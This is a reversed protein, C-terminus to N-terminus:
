FPQDDSKDDKKLTTTAKAKTFGGAVTLGREKLEAKLQAADWKTYDPAADEGDEEEDDEEEEEGDGAAATIAERLDDDSMSKLVKVELDNEKIFAKLAKRDLESLDVGEDEEEEEEEPEEEPEEEEAEAGMAEAIEKRLDDDSKGKTVKVELSEDKILKKLAARDLDDLDVADEEEEAESEDPEEEEEAEDDEPSEGLALLKGVRPRYEGDENRDPKVRVQLETGALKDTDLTGKAKAGLANIFEALKWATPEYELYIYTWLKSGIGEIDKKKGKSDSVVTLVVELGPGHGGKWDNIEEIKAKYMGPKVPKFEPAEEVNTVDYKVKAM